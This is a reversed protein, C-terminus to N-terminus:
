RGADAAGADTRVAFKIPIVVNACGGEPAPAPGALMRQACEYFPPDAKLTDRSIRYGTVNGEADLGLVIRLDGALSQNTRLSREYCGRIKGAQEEAWHVLPPNGRGHCVESSGADPAAAAIAGAEVPATASEVPPAPPQVPAPASGCGHVAGALLLIALL